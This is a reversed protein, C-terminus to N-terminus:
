RGSPRRPGAGNASAGEALMAWVRAAATEPLFRERVFERGAAGARAAAAPDRLYPAIAAALLDPEPEAVLTGTVGDILGEPTGGSDVAVVPLEAAGAELMSTSLGEFGFGQEDRYTSTIYVSLRPLVDAVSPVFGLIETREALGLREALRRLDGAYDPYQEVPGGALVVRLDPFEESLIAAARIILHQGKYPVLRAVTGITPPDPAGPSPQVTLRMPPGVIGLLRRRRLPGLARAAAGSVAIVGNVAMGLPLGLERDWSFDVKHWVLPVARLRCAPACMFAAKQGMAWVVDPRERELLRALSRTFRALLAPTPRRGYGSATRVGIAREELLERLPGDSILLAQVDVDAPRHEIFANLSLEAGGLLGYSSVALVKMRAAASEGM